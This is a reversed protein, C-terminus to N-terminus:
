MSYFPPSLLQGDGELCMLSLLLFAKGQFRLGASNHFLIPVGTFTRGHMNASACIEDWKTRVAVGMLLTITEMKLSAWLAHWEGLTTCSSLQLLPIQTWAPNKKKSFEKHCLKEVKWTSIFWMPIRDFHLSQDVPHPTPGSIRCKQCVLLHCQSPPKSLVSQTAPSQPM